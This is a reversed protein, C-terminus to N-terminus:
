KKKAKIILYPIGWIPVTIFIAIGVLYIMLIKLYYLIAEGLLKIGEITEDALRIVMSSALKSDFKKALKIVQDVEDLDEYNIRKTM